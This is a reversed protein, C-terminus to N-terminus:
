LVVAVACTGQHIKTAYTHPSNLVERGLEETGESPHLEDLPRSATHEKGERKRGIPYCVSFGAELPFHRYWLSARVQFLFSSSSWCLHYLQAKKM